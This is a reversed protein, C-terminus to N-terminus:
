ESLLGGVLQTLETNAQILEFILTLKGYVAQYYTIQVQRFDFSSISGNNYKEYSIDLSTKAVDVEKVSLDVLEKNYTYRDFSQMLQTTLYQKMQSTSVKSINSNLEAIKVNRKVSGGNYLNFSITAGVSPTFTNVVPASSTLMNNVYGLKAFASIQPYINSKALQIGEESIQQNIYQNKLNTNNSFMKDSMASLSYDFKPINIDTEISWAKDIAVNIVSNLQYTATKIARKQQVLRKQDTLYANEAQILNYTDTGGLDYSMKEREYRDKSLKLVDQYLTLLEKEIAISYYSLIISKITNEVELMESGKALDYKLDSIFKTTRVKLGGFLLWDVNLGANTTLTGTSPTSLIDSSFVTGAGISISPYGGAMGWGTNLKAIESSKKAIEINFNNKLGIEIAQGLSLSEQAFLSTTIFITFISLLGKLKKNM